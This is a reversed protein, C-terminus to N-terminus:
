LSPYCRTLLQDYLPINAPPFEVSVMKEDLVSAKPQRKKRWLFFAITGLLALGVVGGVVGGVIAGIDLFSCVCVGSM